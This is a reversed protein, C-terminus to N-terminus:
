APEEGFVAKLFRKAAAAPSFHQLAWARGSAGVRELIGPDSRIREVALGPRNLDIGIYHEWNTPMVPLVAGYMDLDLHLTACGAAWSEWLRFSDWQTLTYPSFSLGLRRQVRQWLGLPSYRSAWNPWILAGGFSACAATERLRNYFLTNHRRGTQHWHLQEAPDSLDPRFGDDFTAVPVHRALNDLFRKNSLTRVPHPVRYSVLVQKRRPAAPAGQTARVIRTTLGYAWPVFNQPHPLRKSYHPRLIVDFKRFEDAFAPTPYGDESDIYITRYRRHERFLDRPLGGHFKPYGDGVVVASCDDPTIHPDARLLYDDNDASTRWYDINSATPVGLERLGEAVAIIMHPYDNNDPPGVPVCHFYIPHQVAVM